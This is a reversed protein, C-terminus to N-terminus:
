KIIEFTIRKEEESFNIEEQNYSFLKRIEKELEDEKGEWKSQNLNETFALQNNKHESIELLQTQKNGFELYTPAISIMKEKLYAILSEDVMYNVIERPTYFSGTQKRATSKTEPNYSALLNEFVKGM